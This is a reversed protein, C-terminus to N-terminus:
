SEYEDLVRKMRARGLAILRESKAYDSGSFRRMPLDLLIDPPCIRMMLQANQHIMISATRNLLTYYNFDLKFAEPMIKNLLQLTRSSAIHQREATRKLKLEGEYDHGCVNVAVLLDGKKREVRNLPLPNTTGGDILVKSDIHMPELYAPLSISARIAQYLSGHRFVVEHGSEWDTSIAAYPIPLEDIDVDPVIHMLAEIIRKGKVLHNLSPSYDTLEHIKRKDITKMWERFTELHGSAYMGGVLAGMSTGAISQIHYGRDLLEEIAGIHALGRAGGSSLVLAVDKKRGRIRRIVTDKVETFLNLLNNNDRNETM